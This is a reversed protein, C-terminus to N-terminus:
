CAKFIALTPRPCVFISIPSRGLRAAVDFIMLISVHHLMAGPDIKLTQAVIISIYDRSDVQSQNQQQLWAIQCSLRFASFWAFPQEAVIQLHHEHLSRPLFRALITNKWFGLRATSRLRAQALKEVSKRLGLCVVLTFVNNMIDVLRERVSDPAILPPAPANMVKTDSPSTLGVM